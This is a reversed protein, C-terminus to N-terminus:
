QGVGYRPDKVCARETHVGAFGSPVRAEGASAWWAAIRPATGQHSNCGDSWVGEVPAALLLGAAVGVIAAGRRTGVPARAFRRGLWASSVAVGTLVVVAGAGTRIWLGWDIAGYDGWREDARVFASRVEVGVAVLIVVAAGLLVVM